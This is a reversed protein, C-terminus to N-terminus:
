YKSKKPPPGFQNRRMRSTLLPENSDSSCDEKSPDQVNQECPFVDASKSADNIVAITQKENPVKVTQALIDKIAEMCRTNNEVCDKLTGHMSTLENQIHVNSKVCSTVAKTLNDISKEIQMLVHLSSVNDLHSTMHHKKMTVTHRHVLRNMTEMLLRQQETNHALKEQFQLTQGMNCANSTQSDMSRDLMQGIGGIQGKCDIGGMEGMHYIDDMQRHLGDASMASNYGMGYGQARQGMGGSEFVRGPLADEIPGIAAIKEAMTVNRAPCVDKVAGSKGTVYWEPMIVNNDFDVVHQVNRLVKTSSSFHGDSEGVELIIVKNNSTDAMSKEEPEVELHSQQALLVEHETDLQDISPAHAPQEKESLVVAATDTGDIENMGPLKMTKVVKLEVKSLNLVLPYKAEFGKSHWQTLAKNYDERVKKRLDHWKKKIDILRRKTTSTANIKQLTSQWIGNKVPLSTCHSKAGFLLEYNAVVSDVLLELSHQSFKAKRKRCAMVGAM